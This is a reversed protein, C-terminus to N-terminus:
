KPSSIVDVLFRNVVNSERRVLVTDIGNYIHKLKDLDEDVHPRVCVRDASASEEWDIQPLNSDGFFM